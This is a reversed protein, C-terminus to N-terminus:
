FGSPPNKKVDSFSLSYWFLAPPVEDYPVGVHSPMRMRTAAPSSEDEARAHSSLFEKM